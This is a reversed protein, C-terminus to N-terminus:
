NITYKIIIKNKRPIFPPIAKTTKLQKFLKDVVKEDEELVPIYIKIENNEVVKLQKTNTIEKYKKTTTATTFMITNDIKLYSVIKFKKGNFVKILGKDKYM